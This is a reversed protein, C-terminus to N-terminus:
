ARGHSGGKRNKRTNEEKGRGPLAGGGDLGMARALFPRLKKRARFLRMKMGSLSTGERRALEEISVGEQHHERVLSGEGPALLHFAQNLIGELREEEGGREERAPMCAEGKDLLAMLARPDYPLAKKRRYSDLVVRKAIRCIWADFCWPNRVRRVGQFGRILVEQLLDEALHPDRVNKRFWGGLRKMYFLALREFAEEEGLQASHVWEAVLRKEQVKM